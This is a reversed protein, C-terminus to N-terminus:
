EFDMSRELGLEWNGSGAIATPRELCLKSPEVVYFRAINDQLFSMANESEPLAYPYIRAEVSRM